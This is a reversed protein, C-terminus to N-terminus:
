LNTSMMAPGLGGILLLLPIYQVMQCIFLDVIVLQKVYCTFHEQCKANFIIFKVHIEQRKNLHSVIDVLM